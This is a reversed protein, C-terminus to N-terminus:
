LIGNVHMVRFNNQNVFKVQKSNKGNLIKLTYDFLKSSRININSELLNYSMM